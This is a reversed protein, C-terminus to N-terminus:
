PYPDVTVTYEGGLADELSREMSAAVKYGYTDVSATAWRSSKREAAQAPSLASVAFFAILIGVFASSTIKTM